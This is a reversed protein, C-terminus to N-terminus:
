KAGNPDIAGGQESASPEPAPTVSGPKPSGDPDIASGEKNMAGDPDIAGGEKQWAGGGPAVLRALWDWAREWVDLVPLGGGRLVAAESRAPLSMALAAGLAVAVVLTRIRQSM